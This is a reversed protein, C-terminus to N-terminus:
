QLLRLVNQQVSNAQSMAYSGSQALINRKSFNASEEAFDVDRIQSEAASVNVQTVSINNITSTLQNQTSGLGARIKDLQKIASDAISMVAMAGERTTVGVGLGMTANAGASQVTNAYGGMAKAATSIILGNVSRLNVTAEDNSGFLNTGSNSIIIDGSGVKTMVLKGYSETGGSKAVANSITGSAKIGRGDISTLNLRGKEDISATVGTLSSAANITNVLKGDSDNAKVDKITGLTVSNLVLSTVDGAAVAASATTQVVAKASVGTADTFRNIAEAMAGLGNGAGTSIKVGAITTTVGANTIHITGTTLDQASTVTATSEFRTSGIKASTTDGINVSITQNSTAGIQFQKNTFAGSLLNMGNYSTTNAINDLEEMLKTIDGQLAKRSDSSQGDQAAQAAKTKITDLIKVQEDMAKDAIQVIGIADNGNKVAQGLTNSQSRLSDAISMGAADDASSNIRLGSSLRALSGSLERNNQMANVQANMASINTNIRFGMTFEKKNIPM